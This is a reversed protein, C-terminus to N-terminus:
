KQIAGKVRKREEGTLRLRLKDAIRGAVDTQLSQLDATRRRFTDGWIQAGDAVNVLNAQIFVSDGHQSLKGTLLVQM